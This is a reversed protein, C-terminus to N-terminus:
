DWKQFTKREGEVWIKYKLLIICSGVSWCDGSIVQLLLVNWRRMPRSQARVQAGDFIHPANHLSANAPHLRGGHRSQFICNQVSPFHCHIGGTTCSQIGGNWWANVFNDNMTSTSLQQQKKCISLYIICKIAITLMKKPTGIITHLVIYLLNFKWNTINKVLMKQM